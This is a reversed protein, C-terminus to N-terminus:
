LGRLSFLGRYWLTPNFPCSLALSLCSVLVCSFVVKIKYPIIDSIFLQSVYCICILAKLFNYIGLGTTNIGKISSASMTNNMKLASYCGNYSSVMVLKCM